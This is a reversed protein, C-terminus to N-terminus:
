QDGEPLYPAGFRLLTSTVIGGPAVTVLYIRDYEMEDIPAVPDGGLAEVLAPTTNSHGVVLHHGPTRALLEATAVMGEGRPDYLEVQLGHQDATPAATQLTRKYDTSFIRTLPADSLLRALENARERGAESLTPDTPHDTARETHRVLYIVSAGDTTGATGPDQALAAGPGSVLALLAVTVAWRWRWRAGMRRM